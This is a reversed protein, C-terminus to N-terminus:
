GGCLAHDILQNAAQLQAFGASRTIDEGGVALTGTLSVVASRSGSETVGANTLYGTQGGNHMWYTGGCSLPVSFLGLGYRAGPWAKDTVEDVPVTSRMLDLEASHLLKGGLLSRYFEGIDETTSLYGGSADADILETVEVMPGGVEFQNYGKAHPTPLTPDDGPWRTNRLGLPELIRASVEAHWPRHAVQEIVLGLLVYGTNSYSWGGGPAFDPAHQVTSALVQQPTRVRYRLRHYDEATLMDLPADHIGSTHQLLHRITIQNGDYGNGRLMDPLWRQVPDDLALRREGVLMLVVTAVMTKTLSGVRFYGDASVPEAVASDARGGVAVRNIGVATDVVRAQVGTSGVAVVADVDRQLGDGTAAGGCASVVLALAVVAAMAYRM